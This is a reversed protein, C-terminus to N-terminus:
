FPFPFFPFFLFLILAPCFHILTASAHCSHLVFIPFAKNSRTLFCRAHIAACKYWNGIGGKAIPCWGVIDPTLLHSCNFYLLFDPDETVTVPNGWQPLPFTGCQHWMVLDQNKTQMRCWEIWRCPIETRNPKSGRFVPRDCFDQNDLNGILDYVWFYYLSMCDNFIEHSVIELMRWGYRGVDVTKRASRHFLTAWIKGKWPM